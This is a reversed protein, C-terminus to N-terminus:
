RAAAAESPLRVMVPLGAPRGDPNPLEAKFPLKSAEGVPSIFIVKADRWEQEGVYQVQVTDGVGLRMVREAEYTLVEVHLPDITVIKIAPTQPGFVEGVAADVKEVTATMTVAGESIVGSPPPADSTENTSACAVLLAALGVGIMTTTANM